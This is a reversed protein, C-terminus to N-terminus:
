ADLTPHELKFLPSFERAWIAVMGLRNQRPQVPGYSTTLAAAGNLDILASLEILLICHIELICSDGDRGIVTVGHGRVEPSRREVHNKCQLLSNDDGTLLTGFECGVRPASMDFSMPVMVCLHYCGNLVALHHDRPTHPISGVHVERSCPQGSNERGEVADLFDLRCHPFTGKQMLRLTDVHM